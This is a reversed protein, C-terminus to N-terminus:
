QLVLVGLSSPDYDIPMWDAATDLRAQKRRFNLGM